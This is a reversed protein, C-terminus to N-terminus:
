KFAEFCPVERFIVNELTSGELCCGAFLFFSLLASGENERPDDRAFLPVVVLRSEPYFPSLNKPGMNKNVAEIGHFLPNSNQVKAGM